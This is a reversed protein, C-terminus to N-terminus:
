HAQRTIGQEVMDPLSKKSALPLTESYRSHLDRADEKGLTYRKPDRLEPFMFSRQDQTHGLGLAHGLEHLIAAKLFPSKVTSSRIMIDAEYLQNKSTVLKTIALSKPHREAVKMYLDDSVEMIANIGNREKYEREQDDIPKIDKLILLDFGIAQNMEAVAHEAANYLESNESAVHIIVPKKKWKSYFSPAGFPQDDHAGYSFQTTAVDAERGPTQCGLLLVLLILAKKLIFRM